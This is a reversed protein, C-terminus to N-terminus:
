HPDAPLSENLQGDRDKTSSESDAVTQHCLSFRKRWYTLMKKRGLKHGSCPKGDAHSLPCHSSYVSGRKHRKVSARERRGLTRAM